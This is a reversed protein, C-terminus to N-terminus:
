RSRRSGARARRARRRRLVAVLAPAGTRPWVRRLLDRVLQQGLPAPARSVSSAGSSTFRLPSCRSSSASARARRSRAGARRRRSRARRPRAPARCACSACRRSRPRGGRRQLRVRRRAEGLRDLARQLEAVAHQDRSRRPRCPGRRRRSSPRRGVAASPKGSSVGCLKEKLLGCPMHTSQLPRPVRTSISGASTTGSSESEISAPAIRGQPGFTESFVPQACPKRPASRRAARCRGPRARPALQRLACRSRRSRPEPSRLYVTRHCPLVRCPGTRCPGPLAHDRAEIRRKM